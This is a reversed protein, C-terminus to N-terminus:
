LFIVDFKYLPKGIKQKCKKCSAQGRKDYDAAYKNEAMVGFHDTSAFRQLSSIWFKNELDGTKNLRGNFNIAFNSRPIKCKAKIRLLSSWNQSLKPAILQNRLCITVNRWLPCFM